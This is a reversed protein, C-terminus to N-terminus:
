DVRQDGLIGNRGGTQFAVYLIGITELRFALFRPMECQVISQSERVPAVVFFGDHRWADGNSSNRGKVLIHYEAKACSKVILSREIFFHTIGGGAIALGDYCQVVVDLALAGKMENPSEVITETHGVARESERCLGVVFCHRIQHGIIHLVHFDDVIADVRGASM